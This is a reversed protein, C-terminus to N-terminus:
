LGHEAVLSVVATLLRLVVVTYGRSVMVLSLGRAAVFVWCLWFYIFNFRLFFSFSEKPWQVSCISYPALGSSLPCQQFFVPWLYYHVLNPHYCHLHHSTSLNLIYRTPWFTREPKEM